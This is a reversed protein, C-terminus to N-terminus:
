ITQKPVQELYGIFSQVNILEKFIDKILKVAAIDTMSMYNLILSVMRNNNAKLAIHLALEGSNNM